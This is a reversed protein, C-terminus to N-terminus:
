TTPYNHKQTGLSTPGPLFCDLPKSEERLNMELRQQEKAESDKKNRLIECLLDICGLADADQWLIARAEALTYERPSKM